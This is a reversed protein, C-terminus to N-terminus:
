AELILEPNKNEDLGSIHIFRTLQSPKSPYYRFIDTNVTNPILRYSLGPFLSAMNKGLEESVVSLGKANKLVKISLNRFYISLDKLSPKANPLYVSSHESVVYDINFVRKAWLALSGAKIIVHLHLL